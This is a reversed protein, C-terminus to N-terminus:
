TFQFIPRLQSEKCNYIRVQLIGSDTFKLKRGDVLLVSKLNSVFSINVPITYWEGGRYVRDSDGTVQFWSENGPLYVRLNTANPFYVNAVLIDSGVYYKIIFIVLLNRDDASRVWLFSMTLILLIKMM